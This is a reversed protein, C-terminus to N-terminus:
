SAQVFTGGTKTMSEQHRRWHSVKRASLLLNILLISRYDKSFLTRLPSRVIEVPASNNPQAAVAEKAAKEAAVEEV